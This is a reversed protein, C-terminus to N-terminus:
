KEMNKILNFISKYHKYLLKAKEGYQPDKFDYKLLVLHSKVLELVEKRTLKINM